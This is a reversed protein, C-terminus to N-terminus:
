AARGALARGLSQDIRTLLAAAEDRLKALESADGGFRALDCRHLLDRLAEADSEAGGSSRVLGACDTATLGAPPRHFREGIYRRVIRSVEEAASAHGPETVARLDALARKLAGKAARTTSGNAARRRALVITAAAFSLLAPAGLAVIAEPRRVQEALTFGQARLLRDGVRNAALGSQTSELRNAEPDDALGPADGLTFQTTAAVRLPVARSEVRVYEESQPNFSWYGIPPIREVDASKARITREITKAGGEIRPPGGGGALKFNQMLEPQDALDPLPADEIPEPGRVAITLTIPDGVSVDTPTANVDISYVGVLGNFDEPRGEAPLQRADLTISNSPTVLRETVPADLGLFGSDRRRGVVVSMSAAAPGLTVPGPRRPTMLVDFTLTVYSHGDLTGEGVVGVTARDNIAIQVARGARLDIQSVNPPPAPAFSLAGDQDPITFRLDRVERNVYLTMRVRVSEGIFPSTRGTTLRLKVEDSEIPPIVRVEARDTVYVKGDVDVGIPPIEFTGERTPTLRWRLGTTRTEKQSRRGNIITMSFGTSQEPPLEEVRFGDIDPFAVPGPSADGEVIIQYLFPEGVFVREAEVGARVTVDRALAASPALLAALALITALITRIAPM